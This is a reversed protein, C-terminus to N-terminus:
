DHSVISSKLERDRNEMYEKEKMEKELEHNIDMEDLWYSINCM